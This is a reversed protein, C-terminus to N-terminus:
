AALTTLSRDFGRIALPVVLPTAGRGALQTEAQLDDGNQYVYKGKENQTMQKELSM